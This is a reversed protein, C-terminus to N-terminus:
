ARARTISTLGRRGVTRLIRYLGRMRTGRGGERLAISAWRWGRRWNGSAIYARSIAAAVSSRRASVLHPPGIRQRDLWASAAWMSRELNEPRQTWGGPHIRYRVLPESVVQIRWGRWLLVVLFMWDESGQYEREEPFGGADDFAARPLVLSSPSGLFRNDITLKQESEARPRYTGADLGNGDVFQLGTVSPFEVDSSTLQRRLKDPEWADDSDLFAVLEGSAASVGLNRARGREVNVDTRIVRISDGFGALTEPTEDESCDDVVIVEGPPLSQGLVSRISEGVLDGRNHTPIIVSVRAASTAVDEIRAGPSLKSATM